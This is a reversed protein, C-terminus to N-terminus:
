NNLSVYVMKSACAHLANCHCIAPLCIEVVKLHLSADLYQEDYKIFRVKIKM